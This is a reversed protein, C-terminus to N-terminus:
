RTVKGSMSAIPSLFVPRALVWGIVTVVLSAAFVGLGVWSVEDRAAYMVNLNQLVGTTLVLTVHVIIFFVFYVMVAFHVKRAAEIPVLRSARWEPKWAPSIRAGTIAALPAAIFVTIFYALVQLGNYAAWGSHSPIDLSLYQLAASLANPFIELSTPVIRMWHGTAFILVAFVLGNLVWLVDLSVHLWKDMSIRQPRKGWLFGPKKATWHAKPRQTTRILWGTRIILVILFMNLFHQWGVWGPIGVPAAEPQPADGGYTAIFSEVGAMGRLWRALLVVVVLVVLAAPIAIALQKGRSRQRGTTSM